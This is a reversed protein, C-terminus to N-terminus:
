KKVLKHRIEIKRIQDVARISIREIRDTYSLNELGILFRHINSFSHKDETEMSNTALLVSVTELNEEFTIREVSLRNQAALGGIDSAAKEKEEPLLAAKNPSSLEDPLKLKDMEQFQLALLPLLEKQKEIQANFEDTQKKTQILLKYRPYMAIVVFVFIGIGCILFLIISRTKEKSIIQQPM